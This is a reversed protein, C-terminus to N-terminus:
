LRPAVGVAGRLLPLVDHELAFGALAGTWELVVPLLGAVAFQQGGGSQHTLRGERARGTLCGLEGDPREVDSHEGEGSCIWQAAGDRHLIRGVTRRPRVAASGAVPDAGLVADQLEFDCRTRLRAVEGVQAESKWWWDSPRKIIVCHSNVM